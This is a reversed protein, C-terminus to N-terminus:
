DFYGGWTSTNACETFADSSADVLDDHLLDPFGELERIYTENWDGNLMYVNGSQVQASFPEARTIKDGTVNMARVNYGALMSIYSKAQEKGAQGPDQPIHVNNCKWNIRDEECTRMILERVGASNLAAHKVDLVIFKGNSLRAILVGATKDPNKNEASIETGALDWARWIAVIKDPVTKVRIFQERKFYLGASPKINWNGHLLRGQEVQSLAQLSGLYEPNTDLLIQNDYISSPVFTFSKIEFDQKGYKEMLEKRTDGWILDGDKRFFYRLVGSREKIPYGNDDIWWSILDRVWSDADPNCTARIYPKVGCTTRNRSLLYWFQKSTFHTLEDFGILPIQAGQYSYVDKEYQLHNFTIKAGSPFQVTYPQTKFTTGQINQYIDLATDWLGGESSIQTSVRRFIVAGFDPNGIHRLPELLLAYTKGGGAAGGYVVIDAKNSLFAEQPGKQPKLVIVNEGGKQM